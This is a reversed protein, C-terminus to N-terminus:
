TVLDPGRFKSICCVAAGNRSGRRFAGMSLDHRHEFMADRVSKTKETAGSADLVRALQSYPQPDYHNGHDRQAEIWDILWGAPEDGMNSGGAADLGGLHNYTFGTLDTRLLMGKNSINWSDRQAQLATAKANRLILSADDGWNPAPNRRESSLHLEEGITAGTLNFEGLFTSESLQVQGGIRAGPLLIDDEFTSKERLLLHRGVKLSDASLKGEVTSGVIWASGAVKAGILTIDKFTGGDDLSLSGGVELRDATLSGTINSKDLWTSGEVRADILDIEAFTGSKMSLDGGVELRYAKLSGTFTSDDLWTSGEVRAGVLNTKEFAGNKM